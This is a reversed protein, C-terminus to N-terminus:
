KRKARRTQRQEARILADLKKLYAVEARLYEVEKLLQERTRSDPETEPPAPERPPSTTMKPGSGKPRPLLAPFGGEHYQREWRAIAGPDKIGLITRLQTRSLSERQMRELAELKFQASYQTYGKRRLGASGHLEYEAIWQRALTRAVGYERALAETGIGGALYRRVVELKLREDHKAM